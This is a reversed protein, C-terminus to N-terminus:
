GQNASRIGGVNEAVLVMPKHRNLVEVGYSYLGGFKGGFGLREGVISFDNCPFGYAFIDIPSLNNIDVQEVDFCLMNESNADGEINLAYTKCSDEDYDNAWVSSISLTTGNNTSKATTAGKALGGTGSFFEGMKLTLKDRKRM